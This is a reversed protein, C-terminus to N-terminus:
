LNFEEGILPMLIHKRQSAFIIKNQPGKKTQPKHTGGKWKGLLASRVANLLDNFYVSM